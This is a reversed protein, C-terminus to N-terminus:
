QLLSWGVYKVAADISYYDARGFGGYFVVVLFGLVTLWIPHLYTKVIAKNYAALLMVGLSVPLIMRLYHATHWGTM